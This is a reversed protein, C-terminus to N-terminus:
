KINVKSNMIKATAVHNGDEDYGNYIGRANISGNGKSDKLTLTGLNNIAYKNAEDTHSVTKGNLDLEVTAGTPIVIMETVAIDAGLTIEGGAAVAAKLEAETTVTTAAFVSGTMMLAVGIAAILSKVIKKM